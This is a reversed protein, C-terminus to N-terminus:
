IDFFGKLMDSSPRNNSLGLQLIVRQYRQQGAQGTISPRAMDTEITKQGFGNDCWSADRGTTSEGGKLQPTEKSIGDVRQLDFKRSACDTDM